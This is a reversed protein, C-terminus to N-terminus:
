RTSFWAACSRFLSNQAFADRCSSFTTMGVPTVPRWRLVERVIADIYPIAGFTSHDPLGGVLSIGAEAIAEQGKKQIAPNQMM